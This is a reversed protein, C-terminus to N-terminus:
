ELVKIKPKDFKRNILYTRHYNTANKGEAGGHFENTWKEKMFLRYIWHKVLACKYLFTCRPTIKKQLIKNLIKGNCTPIVM